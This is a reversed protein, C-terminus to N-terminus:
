KKGNKSNSSGTGYTKTITTILWQFVSIVAADDLRNEIDSSPRNLVKGILSFIASQVTDKYLIGICLSDTPDIPGSRIHKLESQILLYVFKLENMIKQRFLANISFDYPLFIEEKPDGDKLGILEIKASTPQLIAEQVDAKDLEELEESAIQEPAASGSELIASKRSM